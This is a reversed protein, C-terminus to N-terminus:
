HSLVGVSVYALGVFRGLPRIIEFLRGRWCSIHTTQFWNSFSGDVFKTLPYFVSLRISPPLILLRRIRKDAEFGNVMTEGFSDSM